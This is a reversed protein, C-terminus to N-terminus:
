LRASCCCCCSYCCPAEAAPLMCALLLRACASCVSSSSCTCLYRTCASLQCCCSLLVQCRTDKSGPAPGRFPCHFLCARHRSARPFAPANCHTDRCTWVCCCCCCPAQLLPAAGSLLLAGLRGLGQCLKVRLQRQTGGETHTHTGRSQLLLPRGREARASDACDGHNSPEQGDDVHPVHRQHQQHECQL